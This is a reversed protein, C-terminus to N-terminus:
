GTISPVRRIPCILRRSTSLASATNRYRLRSKPIYHRVAGLRGCPRANIAILFVAGLPRRSHRNQQDPM